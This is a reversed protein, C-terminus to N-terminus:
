KNKESHDFYSPINWRRDAQNCDFLPKGLHQNVQNHSRCMWQTFDSRTKLFPEPPEQEMVGKFDDACVKCPYVKVFNKLFQSMNGQMSETAKEPWYAAMSHLVTWGARGLEEVNPPTEDIENNNNDEDDDDNQDEDEEEFRQGTVGRSKLGQLSPIVNKQWGSNGTNKKFSKMLPCADCEEEEIEAEEMPLPNQSM